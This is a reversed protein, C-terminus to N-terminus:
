APITERERTPLDTTRTKWEKLPQFQLAGTIFEALPLQAFSAVCGEFKKLWEEFRAVPHATFLVPYTGEKMTVYEHDAPFLGHPWFGDRFVNLPVISANPVIAIRGDELWSVLFFPQENFFCDMYMEFPMTANVFFVRKGALRRLIYPDYQFKM